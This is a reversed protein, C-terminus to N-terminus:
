GHAHWMIRLILASPAPCFAHFPPDCHYMGLKKSHTKYSGSSPPHTPTILIAGHMELTRHYTAEASKFPSRGKSAFIQGRRETAMSRKLRPISTCAM